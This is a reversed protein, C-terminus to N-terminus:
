GKGGTAVGLVAWLVVSSFIGGFIESNALCFRFNWVILLNEIVKAFKSAKQPSFQKEEVAVTEGKQPVM